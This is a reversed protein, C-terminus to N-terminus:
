SVLNRAPQVFIDGGAGDQLVYAVWHTGDLPSYALSPWIEDGPAWTVKVREILSWSSDFRELYLDYDGDEQSSYVLDFEGNQAILSPYDQISSSTIIRKKELFNLDRDYKEVLIDRNGFEESVYAIYLRDDDASYALSPRDQYSMETTGRVKRMSTWASNFWEIFIDGGYSSGTEWSQYALLYSRFLM